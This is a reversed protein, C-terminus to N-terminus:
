KGVIASADEALDQMTYDMPVRQSALVQQFAPRPLGAVEAARGFGLHGSVYLGLALSLRVDDPSLSTELSEPLTVQMASFYRDRTHFALLSCPSRLHM